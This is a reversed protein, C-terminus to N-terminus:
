VTCFSKTWSRSSASALPGPELLKTDVNSTTEWIDGEQSAVLRTETHKVDLAHEYDFARWLEIQDRSAGPTLKGAIPLGDLPGTRNM